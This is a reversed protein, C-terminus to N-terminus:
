RVLYVCPLKNERAIQQARLHKKATIPFYTGGKVTADNAVFLVERGNVVGIGTIIGPPYHHRHHHRLSQISEPSSAPSSVPSSAQFLISNLNTPILNTRSISILNIQKAFPFPIIVLALNKQFFFIGRIKKGEGGSAISGDAGIEPYLEHGALASLELFTSGPDVIKAIRERPLLKDPTLPILKTV